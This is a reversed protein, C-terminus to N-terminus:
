LRFRLSLITYKYSHLICHVEFVQSLSLSAHGVAFNVSPPEFHVRVGQGPLFPKVVYEGPTISPFIYLGDQNSTVHCLKKVQATKLEPIESKNCGDVQSSGKSQILCILTHM